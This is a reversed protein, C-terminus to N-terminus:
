PLEEGPLEWPFQIWNDDIDEGYIFSKVDLTSKAQNAVALAVVLANPFRDKVVKATKGSDAIDDVIIWKGERMVQDTIPKIKGHFGLIKSVLVAPIYGGNPIALVGLFSSPNYEDLKDQIVKVSNEVKSWSWKVIPKSDFNKKM